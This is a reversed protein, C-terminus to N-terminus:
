RERLWIWTGGIFMPPKRFRCGSYALFEVLDAAYQSWRGGAHRMEAIMQQFEDRTPLNLKRPKVRRPKLLTAPNEKRVGM